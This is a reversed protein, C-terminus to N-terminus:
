QKRKFKIHSKIISSEMDLIILREETGKQNSIYIALNNNSSEIEKIFEKKSLPVVLNLPYKNRPSNKKSFKDTLKTKNFLSYDSNNARQYLGYGLLILGLVIIIGLGLVLSVLVKNKHM